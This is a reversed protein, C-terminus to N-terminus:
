SRRTPKQMKMTIHKRSHLNCFVGEFGYHLSFRKFRDSLSRDGHKFIAKVVPKLNDFWIKTPVYGVYEFINKLGELLCELNEGKFVQMYAGNSYPYSLVLYHLMQKRGSLEFEAEGFDAQAEGGDQELKLYGKPAYLEKKKASVYKRVTRESLPFRENELCLQDNERCLRNYIAKATHRQKAKMQKDDELWKDITAKYPDLKSSKKRVVKRDNFDEVEVDKKVTRFDHGTKRAIERLSKNEKERM